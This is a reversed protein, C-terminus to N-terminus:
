FYCLIKFIWSRSTALTAFNTFYLACLFMPKVTIRSFKLFLNNLQCLRIAFVTHRITTMMLMITQQGTFSPLVPWCWLTTMPRSRRTAGHEGDRMGSTIESPFDSLESRSIVGSVWRLTWRLVYACFKCNCWRWVLCVVYLRLPCKEPSGQNAPQGSWKGWSWKYRNLCRTHTNSFTPGTWSLEILGTPQSRLPDM